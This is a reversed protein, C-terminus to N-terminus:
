RIKTDVPVHYWINNKMIWNEIVTSPVTIKNAFAGKFQYEYEINVKIECIGAQKCNKDAISVSTWKVKSGNMRHIYSLEGENSKWGPSLFGYARKFDKNIKFNWYDIVRNDLKGKESDQCASLLMATSLILLTSKLKNM